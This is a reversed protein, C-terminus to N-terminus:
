KQKEKMREREYRRGKDWFLRAVGEFWVINHDAWLRMPLVVGRKFKWLRDFERNPTKTM